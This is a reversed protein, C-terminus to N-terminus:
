IVYPITMLNLNLNLQGTLRSDYGVLWRPFWWPSTRPIAYLWELTSSADDPKDPKYISSSLTDCESDSM